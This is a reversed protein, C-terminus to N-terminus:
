SGEKTYGIGILQPHVPEYQMYRNRVIIPNSITEAGGRGGEEELEPAQAQLGKPWPPRRLVCVTVGKQTGWM